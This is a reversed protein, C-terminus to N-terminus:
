PRSACAAARRRRRRALHRAVNSASRAPRASSARRRAPAALRRQEVAQGQHVVLASPHLLEVQAGLAVDVRAQRASARARVHAAVGDAVELLRAASAAEQVAEVLAILQGLRDEVVQVRAVVLEERGHDAVELVAGDRALHLVAGGPPEEVLLVADLRLEAGERVHAQERAEHPHDGVRAAEERIRAM